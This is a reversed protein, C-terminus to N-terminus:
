NCLILNVIVNPTLCKGALGSAKLRQLPDRNTVPRRSSSQVPAHSYSKSLLSETGIQSSRAHPAIRAVM